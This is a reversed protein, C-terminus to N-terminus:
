CRSKQGTMNVSVSSPFSSCAATNTFQSFESKTFIFVDIKGSKVTVTGTVVERTADYGGHYAYDGDGSNKGDLILTKNYFTQGHSAALPIGLSVVVVNLILSVTSHNSRFM